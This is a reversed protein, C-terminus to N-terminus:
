MEERGGEAGGDRDGKLEWCAEGWVRRQGGAFEIEKSQFIRGWRKGPHTMSM